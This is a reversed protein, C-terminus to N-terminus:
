CGDIIHCADCGKDLTSDVVEVEVETVIDGEYEVAVGFFYREVPVAYACGEAVAVVGVVDEDAQPFARFAVEVEGVHCHNDLGRDEVAFEACAVIGLEGVAETFLHVGEGFPEDQGSADAAETVYGVGTHRGDRVFIDGAAGDGAEWQFLGFWGWERWGSSGGRRPPMEDEVIRLPHCKSRINLLM